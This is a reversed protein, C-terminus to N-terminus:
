SLIRIIISIQWGLLTIPVNIVKTLKQDTNASSLGDDLLWSVNYKLPGAQLDKIYL